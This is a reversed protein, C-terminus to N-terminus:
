TVAAGTAPMSESEELFDRIASLCDEAREELLMHGAREIVVLKAQPIRERLRTAASLPVVKDQAGYLLLTPASIRGYDIPADHASQKMMALLGDMSGQLRTPMIYEERVEDTLVSRDYYALDLLRKAVLGGLVPLLPRLMFGPLLMRRMRRGGAEDGSVSAALVIATAIEPHVSAL